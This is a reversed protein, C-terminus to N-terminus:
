GGRGSRRAKPPVTTKKKPPIVHKEATPKDPTPKPAAIKSQQLKKTKELTAQIHELEGAAILIEHSFKTHRNMAQRVFSTNANYDQQLIQNIKGKGLSANRQVLRMIDVLRKKSWERRKNTDKTEKNTYVVSESLAKDYDRALLAARFKKYNRFKGQGVNYCIDVALAQMCFPLDQLFPKNNPDTLIRATNRIEAVLAKKGLYEADEAKITYKELDSNSKTTINDLFTQKETDSLKKGGHYIDIDGLLAHNDEVNVGYGVTVKDGKKHFFPFDAPPADEKKNDENRKLMPFFYKVLREEQPSLGTPTRSTKKPLVAGESCGVLATSALLGLFGRRTIDM